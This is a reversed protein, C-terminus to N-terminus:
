KKLYPIKEDFETDEKFAYNVNTFSNCLQILLNEDLLEAKIDCNEFKNILDIARKLLDKEANDTYQDYIIMFNQREIVEGTMTLKLTENINKKLIMKIKPNETNNLKERLDDILSGVDVPRSISFFKFENNESSLESTIDTVKQQLEKDSFLQMNISNIKIISIILNDRTFIYNNKIDLVNIEENASNEVENNKNGFIKQFLKNFM